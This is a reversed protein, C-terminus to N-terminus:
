GVAELRRGFLAGDRVRKGYPPFGAYDFRYPKLAHSNDLTHVHFFINGRSECGTQNGLTFYVTLTKAKINPMIRCQKMYVKSTATLSIEGCIGNLFDFRYGHTPRIRSNDNRVTLVHKGPSAINTLDFIQDVQLLDSKGVLINDLWVTTNNARELKLEIHRGAWAEPIDIDRQYWAVGRYTFKEIVGLKDAVKSEIGVFNQSTTGPLRVRDPLTESFWGGCQNTGKENPDMAFRWEGSLDMITRNM